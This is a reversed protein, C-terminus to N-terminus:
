KRCESTNHSQVSPQEKQLSSNAFLLRKINHDWLEVERECDLELRAILKCEDAGSCNM